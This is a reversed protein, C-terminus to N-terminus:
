TSCGSPQNWHSGELHSISIPQCFLFKCTTLKACANHYKGSVLHFHVANRKTSFNKLSQWPFFNSGKSSSIQGVSVALDALDHGKFLQIATFKHLVRPADDSM